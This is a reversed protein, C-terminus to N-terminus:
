QMKNEIYILLVDGRIVIDPITDGHHERCTVSVPGKYSHMIELIKRADENKKDAIVALIEKLPKNKFVRSRLISAIADSWADENPSFGAVIFPNPISVSSNNFIKLVRATQNLLEKERTEKEKLYNRCFSFSPALTNHMDEFLQKFALLGREASILLSDEREINKASKDM